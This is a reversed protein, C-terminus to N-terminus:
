RSPEATRSRSLSRLRGSLSGSLRWQRGPVHSRGRLHGGQRARLLRRDGGPDQAHVGRHVAPADAQGCGGPGSCGCGYRDDYREGRGDNDVEAEKLLELPLPHIVSIPVSPFAVEVPDQDPFSAKHVVCAFARATDYAKALVDRVSKITGRAEEQSLGKWPQRRRSFSESAHFEVSHPNEPNIDGALKDLEQTIWYSQAEFVSVGGLVLYQEKANGASGADDLYLLHMQFRTLRPVSGFFFAAPHASPEVSRRPLGGLRVDINSVMWAM